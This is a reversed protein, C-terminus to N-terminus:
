CGYAYDYLCIDSDEFVYALVNRVELGSIDDDVNKGALRAPPLDSYYPDSSDVSVTLAFPQDGTDRDDDKGGLVFECPSKTANAAILCTSPGKLVVPQDAGLNVSLRVPSAPQSALSCSVTVGGGRTQDSESTVLERPSCSVGAVDDDLNILTGTVPALAAYDYDADAAKVAISIAFTQPGDIVNDDKGFVHVTQPRFWTRSDFTLVTEHFAAETSPDTQLELDVVGFPRTTLSIEFKVPLRGSETTTTRDGVRHVRVGAEDDDLVTGCLVTAQMGSYHENASILSATLCFPEPGNSIEDNVVGMLVTVRYRLPGFVDDHPPMIRTSNSSFSINVFQDVVSLLHVTFAVRLHKGERLVVSEVPLGSVPPEGPFHPDNYTVSLGYVADAACYGQLPLVESSAYNRDDSKIAMDFKFQVSEERRGGSRACSLPVIEGAHWNTSDLTFAKPVVPRFPRLACPEESTAPPAPVAARGTIDYVSRWHSSGGCLEGEDGVCTEECMNNLCTVRVGIVSGIACATFPVLDLECVGLIDGNCGLRRSRLTFRGASFSKTMRGTSFGMRRCIEKAAKNNHWVGVGCVPHYRGNHLVEPM